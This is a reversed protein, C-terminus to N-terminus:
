GVERRMVHLQLGDETAWDREPVAAFGMRSYIRHADVMAGMTTLAVAEYGREVAEDIVRRVLATGVGLGRAQKAVALMRFELEGARAIEAYPTGPEAVTLSGLLEEDRVAVLVEAAAARRATDALEKAYAEDADVYGDGVYVGVTLVGIAAYEDPRAPRIVVDSTM